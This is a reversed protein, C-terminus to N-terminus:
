SDAVKGSLILSFIAFVGIVISFLGIDYKTFYYIFPLVVSTFFWIVVTLLAIKEIKSMNIIHEGYKYTKPLLNLYNSFM